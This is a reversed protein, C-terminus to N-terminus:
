KREYLVEGAEVAQRIFSSCEIMSQFEEPTYALIDVSVPVNWALYLEKLREMFRKGTPYVVILDIDSLEDANGRAHSGFLVIKEPAFRLFTGVIEKKFDPEM